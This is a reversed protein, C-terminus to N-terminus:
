SISDSDGGAVGEWFALMSWIRRAPHYRSSSILSIRSRGFGRDRGLRLNLLARRQPGQKVYLVVRSVQLQDFLEDRAAGIHAQMGPHKPAPRAPWPSASPWRGDRDRARRHTGPHFEPIRDSSSQPDSSYTRMGGPWLPFKSQVRFPPRLAALHGGDRFLSKFLKRPIEETGASSGRDERNRHSSRQGM